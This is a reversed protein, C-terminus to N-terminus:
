DEKPKIIREKKPHNGGCNECFYITNNEKMKEGCGTCENTSDKEYLEERNMIILKLKGWWISDFWGVHQLTGLM